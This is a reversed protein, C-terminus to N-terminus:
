LESGHERSFFKVQSDTQGKNVEFALPLKATWEEFKVKDKSSFKAPSIEVNGPGTSRRPEKESRPVLNLSKQPLSVLALGTVFIALAMTLLRLYYTNPSRSM